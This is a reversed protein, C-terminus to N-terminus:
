FNMGVGLTFSRQEKKLNLSTVGGSLLFYNGIRKIFGAEVQIGSFSYELHSVYSNNTENNGDYEFENINWYLEKQGYGGGTYLFFDKAVQFNIGGMIMYQPHLAQDTFVYYGTNNYDVIRKGDYTYTNKKLIDPNTIATLYFGTKNILGIRLGVYAPYSATYSAFFRRKPKENIVEAKINFIVDGEFSRVERFVDWIVSKEGETIHDGVDGTVDKLPGIFTDGGNMSVFIQVNCSQYFKLGGLKYKINVTNNDYNLQFRIDKVTQCFINNVIFFFVLIFTSFFIKQTLRM